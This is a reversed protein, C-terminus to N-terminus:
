TLSEPRKSRAAVKQNASAGSSDGDADDRATRDGDCAALGRRLWRGGDLGPWASCRYRDRGCRGLLSLRLGLWL